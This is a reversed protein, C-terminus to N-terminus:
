SRSRRGRGPRVDEVTLDQSQEKLVEKQAEETVQVEEMLDSPLNALSTKMQVVEQVKVQKRDLLRQAEDRELEAKQAPTVIDFACPAEPLNSSKVTLLHKREAEDVAYWANHEAKYLRYEGSTLRHSYNQLLHGLAENRPKLRAYYFSM